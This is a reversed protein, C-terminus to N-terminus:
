IKTEGWRVSVGDCIQEHKGTHYQAKRCRVFFSWTLETVNDCWKVWRASECRYQKNDMVRRMVPLSKNPEGGHAVRIFEDRARMMTSQVDPM